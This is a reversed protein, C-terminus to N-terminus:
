GGAVDTPQNRFGPVGNTKLNRSTLQRFCEASDDLLQRYRRAGYLPGFVEIEYLGRYGQDELANFWDQLPLVGTGPHSRCPKANHRTRDALQVLALRSVIDPVAHFIAANTGVHYLDLVIGLERPLYDNSFALAEEASDFITWPSSDQRSMIEMALTVGFDAAAPQMRDIASSFLRRSHRRTHCGRGGPHIILCEAGIKAATRIAAIGDDIAQEHSMGCSGTFGGAWSLSSVRLDNLYLLDAAFDSDFDSYKARWVGINQIGRRSLEIVEQELSWRYTSFESISLRVM